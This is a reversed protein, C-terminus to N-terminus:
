FPFDDEVEFTNNDNQTTTIAKGSSPNDNKKGGCFSVDSAIVEWVIRKKNEKDIYERSELSGVIAINDGKSFYKAVFEATSRWFVVPIFDSAREGNVKYNRDVAVNVSVVSKGNLTSKLEPDKTLRGTICINNM